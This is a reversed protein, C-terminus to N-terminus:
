SARRLRARNFSPHERIFMQVAKVFEVQQSEDYGSDADTLPLDTDVVLVLGLTGDPSLELEVDSAKAHPHDILKLDM